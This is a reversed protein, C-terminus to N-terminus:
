WQEQLKENRLLLPSILIEQPYMCTDIVTLLFTVLSDAIILRCRLHLDNYGRGWGGGLYVCEYVTRASNLSSRDFCYSVSTVLIM